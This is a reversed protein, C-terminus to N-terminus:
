TRFMKKVKNKISYLLLWLFYGRSFVTLDLKRPTSIKMYKIADALSHRLEYVTQKKVRNEVLGKKTETDFTALHAFFANRIHPPWIGESMLCKANSLEEIGFLPEALVITHCNALEILAEPCLVSIKVMNQYVKFINQLETKVQDTTVFINIRDWKTGFVIQTLTKELKELLASQKIMLDQHTSQEYGNACKFRLLDDSWFQENLDIVFALRNGELYKSPTRKILQNFYNEVEFYSSRNILRAFFIDTQKTWSVFKLGLDSFYCIDNARYIQETGKVLPSWEISIINKKSKLLFRLFRGFPSKSSPVFPIFIIDYQSSMASYFQTELSVVKLQNKGFVECLYDIIIQEAVFGEAIFLFKM